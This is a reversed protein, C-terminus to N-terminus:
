ACAGGSGVTCARKGRREVRLVDGRCSVSTFGVLFFKYSTAVRNDEFAFPLTSSVTELGAVDEMGKGDM